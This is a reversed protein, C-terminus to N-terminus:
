TSLALGRKNYCTYRLNQLPEVLGEIREVVLGCYFFFWVHKLDGFVLDRYISFFYQLMWGYEMSVVKGKFLEENNFYHYLDWKVGNKDWM